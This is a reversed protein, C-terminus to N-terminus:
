IRGSNYLGGKIVKLFDVKKEIRNLKEDTDTKEGGTNKAEDKIPKWSKGSFLFRQREKKLKQMTENLSNLLADYMSERSRLDLESQLRGPMSKLCQVYEDNTAPTPPYDFRSGLLRNAYYVAKGFEPLEIMTQLSFVFQRRDTGSILKSTPLLNYKVLRKILKRYADASENLKKEERELQRISSPLLPGDGGKRKVPNKLRERVTRLCKNTDHYSEMVGEPTQWTKYRMSTERVFNDWENKEWMIVGEKRKITLTM